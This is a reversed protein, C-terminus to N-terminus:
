QATTGVYFTMDCIVAVAKVNPPQQQTSILSLLQFNGLIICPMVPSLSAETRLQLENVITINMSRLVSGNEM